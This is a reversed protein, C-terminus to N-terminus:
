LKFGNNEMFTAIYVAHEKAPIYTSTKDYSTFFRETTGSVRRFFM